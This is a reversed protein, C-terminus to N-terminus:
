EERKGIKPEGNLTKRIGSKKVRKEAKEARRCKKEKEEKEM